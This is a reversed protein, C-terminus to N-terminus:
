RPSPLAFEVKAAASAADEPRSLRWDGIRSRACSAWARDVGGEASFGASAVAGGRRVYLTVRLGPPPSAEAEASCEELDERKSAPSDDEGDGGDEAAAPSAAPSGRGAGGTAGARAHAGGEIRSENGADPKEPPPEHPPAELEAEARAEDWREVTGLGEFAVPVSVTTAGGDPPDFEIAGAEDLLCDEVEWSGLDSKAIRAEGVSGDPQVDLAILVEGGIFDGPARQEYCEALEEARGQIGTQAQYHSLRGRTGDVRFGDDDRAEGEIPPASAERLGDGHGRPSDEASPAAPDTESGGCGVALSVSGAATLIVLVRAPLAATRSSSPVCAISARHM